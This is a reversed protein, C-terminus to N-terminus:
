AYCIKSYINKNNQDKIRKFNIRNNSLAIVEDITHHNPRRLHNDNYHSHSIVYVHSLVNENGEQVVLKVAQYLFKSPGM